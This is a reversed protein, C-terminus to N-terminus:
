VEKRVQWDVWSREIWWRRRRWGLLHVDSIIMVSIGEADEEIKPYSCSLTYWIYIGCQCWVILLLLFLPLRGM